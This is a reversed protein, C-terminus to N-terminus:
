RTRLIPEKENLRWYGRWENETVRWSKHLCIGEQEGRYYIRGYETLPLINGKVLPYHWYLEENYQYNTCLDRCVTRFDKKQAICQDFLKCLAEAIHPRNLLDQLRYSNHSLYDSEGWKERIEFLPKELLAILAPWLHEACWSWEPKINEVTLEVFRKFYDDTEEIELLFGVQGQLCRSAEAKLLADRRNPYKDLYELKKKELELRKNKSIEKMDNTRLFDEIDAAHPALRSLLDMYRKQGGYNRSNPDIILNWVIRMWKEYSDINRNIGESSNDIYLMMAYLAIRNEM